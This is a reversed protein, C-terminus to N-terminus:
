LFMKQQIYDKVELVQELGCSTHVYGKVELVQELGCSTRVSGEGIYFM